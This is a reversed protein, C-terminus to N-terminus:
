KVTQPNWFWSEMVVVSSQNGQKDPLTTFVFSYNTVNSVTGKGRHQKQYQAAYDQMALM